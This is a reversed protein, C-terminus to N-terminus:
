VWVGAWRGPGAAGAVAGRCWWGGCGRGCGGGSGGVQQAQALRAKDAGLAAAAEDREVASRLLATNLAQMEEYASASSEIESAYAAVDAQLGAM